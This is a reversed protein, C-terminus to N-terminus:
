NIGRGFRSVLARLGPLQLLGGRVVPDLAVLVAVSVVACLGGQWALQLGQALRSAGAPAPDFLQAMGSGSVAAALAPLALRLVDLSRLGVRPWAFLAAATLACVAEISVRAAALAVLRDPEPAGVLANAVAIFVAVALLTHIWIIRAGLGSLSAAQLIPVNFQAFSLSFGSVCLVALLVAGASWQPGLLAMAPASFAALLAFVPLTTAFSFRLLSSAAQRLAVPDHQSRALAPLSVVQLSRAGVQLVMGVVRSALRYIGVATPGLYLGILLADAQQNAYVGLRAFVNARSFGWLDRVFQMKFSLQPRWPSLRWILASGILERLLQQVVLAWVGL